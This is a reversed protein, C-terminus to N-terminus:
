MLYNTSNTKFTRSCFSRVRSPRRAVADVSVLRICVSGGLSDEVACTKHDPDRVGPKHFLLSM